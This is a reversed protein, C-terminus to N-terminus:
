NASHARATLIVSESFSPRGGPLRKLYHRVFTSRAKWGAARLISDLPMGSVHAWTAAVGRTDHARFRTFDGESANKYASGIAEKIWNSVTTKNARHYDPRSIVFLHPSQRRVEKTRDRYISLARVPCSCEDRPSIKGLNALTVPEPDFDPSQNKDLVLDPTLTVSDDERHIQYFGQDIRLAHTFSVRRGSALQVLFATKVSLDRLTADELPEYPPLNLHHLVLPLDWSPCLRKKPPRENFLGKIFASLVTNSSVTSGDAFGTHVSNIASRFGRVTQVSRLEDGRWPTDAVFRLFQSVQTVPATLPDLDRDGAWKYFM